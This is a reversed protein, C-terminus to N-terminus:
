IFGFEMPSISIGLNNCTMKEVTLRVCDAENDGEAVIIGEFALPDPFDDGSVVLSVYVELDIVEYDRLVYLNFILSPLSDIPGLGHFVITGDLIADGEELGLSEKAQAAIRILPSIHRSASNIIRQFFSMRRSQPPQSLNDTMKAVDCRLYSVIAVNDDSGDDGLSEVSVGDPLTQPVSTSAALTSLLSLAVDQVASHISEADPVAATLSTAMTLSLVM